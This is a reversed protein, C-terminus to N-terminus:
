LSNFDEEAKGYNTYDIEVFTNFRTHYDLAVTGLPGNRHKAIILEKRQIDRVKGSEDRIGDEEAHIFMVLDADQEISGSDRLDSLKPKGGRTEVARSLQSLAIVPISLERALHKLSRSIETVQQVLSDSARSSSPAMLQLYDVVLLKLGKEIKLKRAASRMKMATNGPQDDIFIPARSLDDLASGINKFTEERWAGSQVRVGKRIVSADIRSQAAVIRDVLQDASMELSFIGVGNGHETATRRAIDLALATKGVSPRAALIILDSNQFGGLLDDLSKFGTRVGRLEHEASSLKEFREFAERLLPVLDQFRATGGYRETIDFVKKEAQDLIEELEGAENFGLHSLHESAEILQRMMYKKMVIEAYHKANASSPVTTSLETLFAAGGVRDLMDKEKLRSSLSLIDIPQHKGFLELMTEFIMRHKEFYFSEVTVIDMVEYLADQRLMISGLLAMEAELSHPPIRLGSNVAALNPSSHSKSM